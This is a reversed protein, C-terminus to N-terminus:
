LDSKRISIRYLEDGKKNKYLYVFGDVMRKLQEMDGGMERKFNAVLTQKDAEIDYPSLEVDEASADTDIVIVYYLTRGFESVETLMMGDAIRVPLEKPMTNSISLIKYAIKFSEAKGWYNKLSKKYAKLAEAEHNAVMLLDGKKEYLLGPNQLMWGNSWSMENISICRDLHLLAMDYRNAVFEASYKELETIYSNEYNRRREELRELSRELSSTDMPKPKYVFPVFTSQAIALLSLGLFAISLWLRKSM